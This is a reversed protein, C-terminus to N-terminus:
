NKGLLEKKKEDYEEQTIAGMDLLEKFKKIEDAVSINENKETNKSEIEDTIVIFKSIIEQACKYIEKYKKSDNSVPKRILEIYEVPNSSNNTTIKIQMKNCVKRIDKTTGGAIAGALGFLEGGILSLGLGGCLRSIGDELIEYKLVEDYKHVNCGYIKDLFPIVFWKDKDDFWIYNEIKYTPNFGNIRTLNEQNNKEISEIREKIEESTMLKLSDATFTDSLGAKKACDACIFSGEELYISSFTGVTEGCIVCKENTFFGM